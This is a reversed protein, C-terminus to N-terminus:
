ILFLTLLGWLISASGIGIGIIALRSGNENKKKCDLLGLTSVITGAIGVIGLFNLLLSIGSIVLGIICLTNTPAKQVSSQAQNIEAPVPPPATQQQAAGCDPCFTSDSNLEKGCNVCFM